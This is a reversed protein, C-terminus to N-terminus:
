ARLARDSVGAATVAAAREAPRERRAAVRDALSGAAYGPFKPIHGLADIGVREIDEADRVRSDFAGVVVAAVPLLALLALVSVVALRRKRAQAPVPTPAILQALEVAVPSARWAKAAVLDQRARARAADYARRQAEIRQQQVSLAARQARSADALASRLEALERDLRELAADAEQLHALAEREFSETAREHRQREHAVVADALREVLATGGVADPGRYTIAIRVTRRTDSGAILFFNRFVVVSVDERVAAVADADGRALEAAYMGRERALDRVIPLVTDAGLVVQTFYGQLDGRALSRRTDQFAGETMRLIARARYLPPKRALAAVALASVALALATTVPWRARGRRLVRALEAAAARLGPESDLWDTAAPEPPHVAARARM